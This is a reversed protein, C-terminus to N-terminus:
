RFIEVTFIVVSGIGYCVIDKIDFTSGIIVRALVCEELKLLKVLQFYQLVEVSAAFIFIYLPMFKVGNPVFFRVFCYVVAVVLVDGIYPRIFNDHVYLAIVIEVIMLILFSIGYYIRKNKRNM